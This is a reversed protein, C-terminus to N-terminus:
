YEIREGPLAPTNSPWRRKLGKQEWAFALKILRGEDFPRGLFDIGIPVGDPATDLPKPYGAPVDIAPLMGSSALFGNRESNREGYAAVLRSQIPYILADLSYRDMLGVLVQRFEHM